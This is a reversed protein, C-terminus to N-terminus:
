NQVQTLSKHCVVNCIVCENECHLRCSLLIALSCCGAMMTDRASLETLCRRFEGVLLGLGWCCWHMCWTQHFDMSALENEDPFSIRVVSPHVSLCVSTWRSVEVGRWWRIAPYLIYVKWNMNPLITKFVPSIFNIKSCIADTRNMLVTFIVIDWWHAYSVSLTGCVVYTMAFLFKYRTDQLVVFYLMCILMCWSLRLHKLM